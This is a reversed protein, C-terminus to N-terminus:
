IELGQSEPQPKKLEKLTILLTKFIPNISQCYRSTESCCETKHHLMHGEDLLVSECSLQMDLSHLNNWFLM